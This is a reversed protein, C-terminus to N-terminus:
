IWKNLDIMNEKDKNM